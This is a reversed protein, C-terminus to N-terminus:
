DHKASIAREGPRFRAAKLPITPQRASLLTIAQSVILRAIETVSEGRPAEYIAEECGIGVSIRNLQVYRLYSEIFWWISASADATRGRRTAMGTKLYIPRLCSFLRRRRRRREGEYRSLLRFTVKIAAVIAGPFM